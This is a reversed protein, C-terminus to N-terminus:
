LQKAPDSNRSCPWPGGGAPWSAPSPSTPSWTGSAVSVSPTGAHTNGTFRHWDGMEVVLALATLTCVGRPCSLRRVIPTVGSDAAMTAIATDLRDRPAKVTLVADYDTWAQGRSYVTGRRLLLKSLRYRARM